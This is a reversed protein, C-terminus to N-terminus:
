MRCPRLELLLALAWLGLEARPSDRPFPTEKWMLNTRQISVSQVASSKLSWEGLTQVVKSLYRFAFAPLLKPVPLTCTLEFVPVSFLDRSLILLCARVM